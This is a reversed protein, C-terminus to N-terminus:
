GAWGEHRCVGSWEEVAGVAHTSYTHSPPPSHPLPYHHHRHSTIITTPAKARYHKSVKEPSKETKAKKEKKEVVKKVENKEVTKVPTKVVAKKEPTKTEPKAVQTKVKKAVPKVEEEEEESEEADEDDGEEGEDEEGELEEGTTLSKKLELLDQLQSATDSPQKRKKSPAPSSSAAPALSSAPVSSSSSSATLIAALPSSPPPSSFFAPNNNKSGTIASSKPTQLSRLPSASTYGTLHVVASKGKGKTGSIELSFSAGPAPTFKLDLRRQDHGPTARL